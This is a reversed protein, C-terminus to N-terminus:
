ISTSAIKTGEAVPFPFLKATKSLCILFFFILNIDFFFTYYSLTSWLKFSQLLEKYQKISRHKYKEILKQEQKALLFKDGETHFCAM